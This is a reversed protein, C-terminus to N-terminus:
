WDYNGSKIPLVAMVLQTRNSVNFKKFLQRLNKKVYGFSIDLEEAIEYNNKGDILLYIIKEQLETIIKTM